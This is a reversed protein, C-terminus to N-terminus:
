WIVIIDRKEHASEDIVADSSNYSVTCYFINNRILGTLNDRTM